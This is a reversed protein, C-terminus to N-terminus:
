AGVEIRGNWLVYHSRYTESHIVRGSADRVVRSVSVDMGDSPFETQMRQGHPLTTVTVVNTTAALRNTVVPRSLSV